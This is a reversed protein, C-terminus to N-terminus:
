PISSQQSIFIWQIMTNMSIPAVKLYKMLNNNYNIYRDKFKWHTILDFHNCAVSADIYINNYSEHSPTYM